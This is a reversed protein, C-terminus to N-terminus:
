ALRLRVAAAHRWAADGKGDDEQTCADVLKVDHDDDSAIARARLTAWDPPADDRVPDSPPITLAAALMAQWHWRLALAPDDLHPWVVGLAQTGTVLHLAIFDGSARFLERAVAALERRDGPAYAAIKADFGARSSATKMRVMSPGGRIPDALERDSRAAAMLTAPAESNASAPP